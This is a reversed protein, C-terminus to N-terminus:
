QDMMSSPQCFFQLVPNDCLRMKPLLFDTVEAVSGMFDKNVTKLDSTRLESSEETLNQQPSPSEIM